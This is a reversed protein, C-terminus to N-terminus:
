RTEARNEVGGPLPNCISAVILGVAGPDGDAPDSFGAETPDRLRAAGDELLDDRRAPSMWDRTRCSKEPPPVSIRYDQM